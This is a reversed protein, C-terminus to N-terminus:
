DAFFMIGFRSIVADFGAVEFPHVQVDAQEFAANALGAREADARAEDLMPASLDVGVAPGPDVARAAAMTTAGCGCGVDLVREGSRQFSPWTLTSRGSSSGNSTPAM